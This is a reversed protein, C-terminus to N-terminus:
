KGDQKLLKARNKILHEQLKEGFEILRKEIKSLNQESENKNYYLFPTISSPHIKLSEAIKTILNKSVDKQGTEVMAILVTSVGIAKAFEAQTLGAENRIEKLLEPFTYM